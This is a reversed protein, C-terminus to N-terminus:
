FIVKLALQMTRPNASFQGSRADFIGFNANGPTLISRSVAATGAPTVDSIRGAIYQPHNFLNFIQAHLEVSARETVTFRKLINMNIDDIPNSILTNRPGNPFQGLGAQIYKANPNNALYAVTQGGTNKLATVGSSGTGNPFYWARDGASDLDLNVDRASQVTFPQGSEYTYMPAIEWNGFVNKAFWNDSNKFFPVDWIAALTFRHRRDLASNSREAAFNQPDQPRRPNLVTSFVDATSNDILHSWTYAGRFQFGKTFNRTIQTQLGHYISSGWPQFGVLLSGNFGAADFDPRIPNLALLGNLTNPLADLTAQTPASLFLPLANSANVPPLINMRQQVPLHIGRTGVYRVELAYDKLFTQQVGLNWQISYPLKQDPVFSATAARQDAVTPFTVLGSGTGPPLGGSALFNPAGSSLDVDQTGGLQPPVSLLGLNDYLKDISMGFGARISTEGKGTPDWALGIRPVINGKQASPERFEILGPVSAASNLAQLKEAKPVGTYEYRAGLNLTLRPTVKWQDNVYWFIQNMNGYYVSNGSSREGLQDPTIDFLYNRLESYNYDGRSRQTFNQPSINWRYEFGFKWGHRGRQWSLNDVIQYGNQIGGQPANPDPGVQMDNLDAFQLNPFSDLGPFAFNGGSFEQESRTYALRIENTVTPSFTRFYSFTALNQIAPLPLWFAPIQASNDIGSFHGRVYRARFQDKDSANWDGSAVYNNTNSFNPGQFIVTGVPVNANAATCATALSFVCINGGDNAAAVPVYQKFIALNNASLGPTANIIAMGAATPALLEGGTSAQGISQREFNFFGFLKDKIIPGGVNGGYRNNDYRANEKNTDKPVNFDRANYNRNQNYVYAMGHFANTGSKVTTNFQGGSSYGFEPQVVNQLVTFNQVADNPVTALPGTVSRDNNDAGEIMFNNNRPRQGGISPGTGLGIGGSSAVGANLLSLNIVGAGTTAVGTDRITKEDFTNQIQPTSTDIQNEATTVEVTTAVNGPKLSANVTNTKNLAVQVGKASYAAFGSSTVTIDYTGVPVNSIRYSGSASTTSTLKLGTAENTATVTAGSVVAGSPDTVIGTLEGSTQQAMLPLSALLFVLMLGLVAILSKSKM